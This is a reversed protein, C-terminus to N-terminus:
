KATGVYSQAVQKRGHGLRYSIETRAKSDSARDALCRGAIVPADFGTLIKYLECAFAARLDQFTTLRYRKNVKRFARRIKRAFQILSLEAPIINRANGQIAVGLKLIFIERWGVEVWRDVYHGRGNKTGEIINIKNDRMAESYLRVYDALLAERFRMGFYRCALIVLASRADDMRHLTWAAHKVARPVVDIKLAKRAAFVRGFWACPSLWCRKNGHLHALVVNVASLKAVATRQGRGTREVEKALTRAFDEVMAPMVDLLNSVGFNDSIHDCFMLLRARIWAETSYHKESFRERLAAIIQSLMFPHHWNIDM